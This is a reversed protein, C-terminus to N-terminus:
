HSSATEYVGIHVVARTQPKPHNNHQSQPSETIPVIKEINPTNKPLTSMNSILHLTFLVTILVCKFYITSYYCDNRRTTSAMMCFIIKHLSTPHQQGDNSIKRNVNEGIDDQKSKTNSTQLNHWGNM